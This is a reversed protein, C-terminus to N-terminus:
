PVCLACAMSCLSFLACICHGTCAIHSVQAVCSAYLPQLGTSYLAVIEPIATLPANGDVNQVTDFGLASAHLPFDDHGKSRTMVITRNAELAMRTTNPVVSLPAGDYARRLSAAQVRETLVLTSGTCLWIGSGPAVHFWLGYAHVGEDYPPGFAVRIVELWAGSPSYLLHSQSSSSSTPRRSGHARRAFQSKHAVEPQVMLLSGRSVRQRNPLWAVGLLRQAVHSSSEIPSSATWKRCHDVACRPMALGLPRGCAAMPWEVHQPWYLPDNAYFFRLRSLDFPLPPPVGAYVTLLYSYWPSATSNCMIPLEALFEAAERSSCLSFCSCNVAAQRQSHNRLETDVHEYAAYAPQASPIPVRDIGKGHVFATSVPVQRSPSQCLM